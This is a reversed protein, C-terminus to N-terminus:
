GPSPTREAHWADTASTWYTDLVHIQILPPVTDCYITIRVGGRAGFRRYHQPTTSAKLTSHNARRSTSCGSEPKKSRRSARVSVHRTPVATTHTRRVHLPLPSVVLLPACARERPPPARSFGRTAFRRAPQHRTVSSRSDPRSETHVSSSISTLLLRSRPPTERSGNVAVVESAIDHLSVSLLAFTRPTSM